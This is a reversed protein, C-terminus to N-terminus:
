RPGECDDRATEAILRRATALEAARDDLEGNVKLRLLERMVLGVEPSEALGMSAVDTGSIDLEIARLEDVYRELWRRAVGDDELALSLLVGDPDIGAILERAEFPEAVAGLADVVQGARQVAEDIKEADRRRLKLAAQWERRADDPIRRAMAAFRLRWAPPAPLYAARLDDLRVVLRRTESGVDLEPQLWRALDLDELRTLVALIEKEELLAVLEDRIRVASLEGVFGMEMCTRALAETHPDMRFRYRSEYRVARFIRTPDDIFSLGHLVRVVGDELDQRGGFPDVLRGYDDSGLSVAMANVTFDRRGLDQRITAGEVAPLAAPEEYFEARTTAVDVRGQGHVIVATGFRDHPVVRGGLASGLTRAFAIGDGEVAIDVDTVAEGLLLDRVAGGVLYVGRYAG